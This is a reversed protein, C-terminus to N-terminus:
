ARNKKQPRSSVDSSPAGRKGRRLEYRAPPSSEKHAQDSMTTDRRVDKRAAEGEGRATKGRRLNYGQKEGAKVGQTGTDRAADAKPTTKTNPRAAARKTRFIGKKPGKVGALNVQGQTNRAKPKEDRLLGSSRKGSVTSNGPTTSQGHVEEIRDDDHKISLLIVQDTPYGLKRLFDYSFVPREVHYFPKHGNWPSALIPESKIAVGHLISSSRRNWNLPDLYPVQYNAGFGPPQVVPYANRNSLRPDFNPAYYGPPRVVSYVNQISPQPVSYTAHHDARAGPHRVVAQHNVVPKYQSTQNGAVSGLRCEEAQRGWVEHLCRANNALYRPSNQETAKRVAQQVYASFMNSQDTLHQAEIQHGDAGPASSALGPGANKVAVRHFGPLGDLAMQSHSQSFGM